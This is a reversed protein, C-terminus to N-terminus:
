LVDVGGRRGEPTAGKVELFTDGWRPVTRLKGSWM